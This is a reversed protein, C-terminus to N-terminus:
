FSYSASLSIFDRDHLLNAKGAGFYMTYALRATIKQLYIANLMLSMAKTGEVFNRIPTPTVGEVDHAWAFIPRLTVVGIANNFTPALVLRYGWSFSDAFGGETTFPQFGADTWWQNGSTETGPGDYRLVDKDEMGFFWTAGVELLFALDDAGLTRGFLKTFTAQAQLMDKREYGRTYENFGPVGRLQTVQSNGFIPPTVVADEPPVGNVINELTLLTAAADDYPSQGHAVLEFGDIQIPQGLRGSVEGQFAIGFPIVTNWSFGLIDIDEPFERFYGSTSAGDGNVLGWILLGLPDEPAPDGTLGSLVPRRSHIHMYYLGLETEWLWPAFYRLAVGGQGMHNPENDDKRPLWSGTPPRTGVPQVPNDSPGDPPPLGFGLTVRSAGPSAQDTTSFYTGFPEIETNDWFFQYFGELSLNDTIGANMSIMPVPLLAEKLESGPLRLATVDVPNISNIGGQIFTSEGWSLVQNGVRVTLPRNFVEYDGVVYLDLLRINMGARRRANETFARFNPDFKMIAWDYFYFFRGFFGYNKWGLDIEHLIKFNLSTIDGPDFNLNGDDVDADYGTGGNVQAVIRPDREEVRIAIGTSVTTDLSGKIPGTSIDLAWASGPAAGDIAVVPGILALLIVAALPRDKGIRGQGRKVAHRIEM